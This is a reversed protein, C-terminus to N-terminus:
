CSRGMRKGRPRRFWWRTGQLFPTLDTLAGRSAWEGILFRDFYVLEPPIDGAVACLLRQGDGTFNPSVSSSAVIKYQPHQQEFQHLVTYIDVGMNAANWFVIEQRGDPADPRTSFYTWVVVGVLLSIALM